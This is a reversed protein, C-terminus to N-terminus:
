FWFNELMHLLLNLFIENFKPSKILNLTQLLTLNIPFSKMSKLRLMNQMQMCYDNFLHWYLKIDIWTEKENVCWMFILIQSNCFITLGFLSSIKIKTGFKQEKGGKCTHLMFLDIDHNRLFIRNSQMEIYSKMKDISRIKYKSHKFNKLIICFFSPFLM